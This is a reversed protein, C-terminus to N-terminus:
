GIEWMVKKSDDEPEDMLTDRAEEWYKALTEIVQKKGAAPLGEWIEDTVDKSAKPQNKKFAWHFFLLLKAAPMELAHDPTLKREEMSACIDRDFEAIYGEGKPTTFTIRNM